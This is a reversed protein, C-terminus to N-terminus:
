ACVGYKKMSKIGDSLLAGSDEKITKEINEERYIKDMEAKKEKNNERYIRDTESKKNKLEIEHDKIDQTYKEQLEENSISLEIDTYTHVYEDVDEFWNIADNVTNIFFSIDKDEPLIFRDRNAKERYKDLKYLVMKEIVHM